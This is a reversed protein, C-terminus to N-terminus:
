LHSLLFFKPSNFPSMPAVLYTKVGEKLFGQYDGGFFFFREALHHM